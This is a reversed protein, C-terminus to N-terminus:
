EDEVAEVKDPPGYDWRVNSLIEKIRRLQVRQRANLHVMLASAIDPMMRELEALDDGNIQHLKM